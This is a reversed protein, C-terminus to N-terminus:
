HCVVRFGIDYDKINPNFDHRKASRLNSVYSSWSGGRVVRSSGISSGIPNNTSSSDYASHWDNCWEWVNGSMNYLGYNNPLKTGVPHTKLDSNGRNWCYRGDVSNGWYYDTTTGARCAYEWEAETPLRYGNNNMNISIDKLKCDNGASGKISGYSYVSDKGEERSRANCYLVADYWNVNYAPYSDGSGYSLSWKNKRYSSYYKSMLRRYEGQTVETRDIFFSSVTVKHVSKKNRKGNTTGMLFSGGPINIMGYKNYSDYEKIPAKVKTISKDNENLSSGSSVTAVKVGALKKALPTLMELVEDVSKGKNSVKRKSTGGVIDLLSINVMYYSGLKTIDGSIVFPAGLAGAIEQMCSADSCDLLEKDMEQNLMAGVDEYTVIDWDVVAKLESSFYNTLGACQVSDIVTSRFNRIFVREGKAFLTTITIILALVINRM